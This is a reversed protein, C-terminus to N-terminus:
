FLNLAEKEEPCIFLKSAWWISFGFNYHLRAPTKSLRRNSKAARTTLMKNSKNQLHIIEYESVFLKIHESRSNGVSNAATCYYMGPNQPQVTFNQQDSLLTTNDEERYWKYHSAPPYADASCTLYVPLEWNWETQNHVININPTDTSFLWVSLIRWLWCKHSLAQNYFM